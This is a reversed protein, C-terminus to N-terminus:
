SLQKKITDISIGCIVIVVSFILSSKLLSIGVYYIYLSNYIYLYYFLIFSSILSLVFTVRLGKKIISYTSKNINKLNNIFTNIM